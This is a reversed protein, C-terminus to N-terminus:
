GCDKELKMAREYLFMFENFREKIQYASVNDIYEPFLIKVFGEFGKEISNQTRISSSKWQINLAEQFLNIDFNKERLEVLAEKLLLCSCLSSEKKSKM